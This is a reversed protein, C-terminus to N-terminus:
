AARPPETKPASRSGRLMMRYVGLAILVAFIALVWPLHHAMASTVLGIIGPGFRAVLIGLVVFRILRGSFVSLLFLYPRMEFVGASLLFLKLPTPPPLMAPVMMAFFEQNAFKDRMREYRQRDIHNLLLLEGGARGIGYPVLCGLTSGAATAVVYLWIKVPDAYVYGAFAVDVPIAFAAADLVAALFLGWGGLPQLIGWVFHSYRM